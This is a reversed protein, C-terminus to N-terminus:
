VMSWCHLKGAKSTSLLSTSVFAATFSQNLNLLWLLKLVGPRFVVFHTIVQKVTGAKNRSRELEEINRENIGAHRRKKEIRGGNQRDREVVWGSKARGFNGVFDSMKFSNTQSACYYQQLKTETTHKYLIKCHHPIHSMWVMPKLQIPMQHFQKGGHFELLIRHILFHWWLRWVM